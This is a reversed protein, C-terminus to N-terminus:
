AQLSPRAVGPTTSLGALGEVERTLYGCLAFGLTLRAFGSLAFRRARPPFFDAPVVATHAVLSRPLPGLARRQNAGFVIRFLKGFLKSRAELLVEILLRLSDALRLGAVFVKHFFDARVIATLPSAFAAMLRLASWHYALIATM